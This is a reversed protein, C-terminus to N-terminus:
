WEDNYCDLRVRNNGGGAHKEGDHCPRRRGDHIRHSDINPDNEM